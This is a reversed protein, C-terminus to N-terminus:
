SNIINNITTKVSNLRIAKDGKIIHYDVGLSKIKNEYIKFLELRNNPNERQSDFEWPIDPSCLFYIDPLYKRLNDYIFSHCKKYKVECWIELTLLDTDSVLFNQNCNYIKLENNFQVKAIELIDKYNYVRNLNDIYERAYEHVGKINYFNILQHFLTTKGSSEPGTIILKKM